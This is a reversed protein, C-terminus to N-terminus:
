KYDKREGVLPKGEGLMHYASTRNVDCELNWQIMSRTYGHMIAHKRSDEQVYGEFNYLKELDQMVGM